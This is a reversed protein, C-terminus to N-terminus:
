LTQPVPQFSHHPTSSSLPLVVLLISQSVEPIDEHHLDSFLLGRRVQPYLECNYILVAFAVEKLMCTDTYKGTINITPYKCMCTSPNFNSLEFAYHERLYSCKAKPINFFTRCQISTDKM